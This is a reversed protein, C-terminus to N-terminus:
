LFNKLYSRLEDDSPNKTLFGYEVYFFIENDIAHAEKDENDYDQEMADLLSHEAVTVTGEDEFNPVKDIDRAPYKKGKYEIYYM